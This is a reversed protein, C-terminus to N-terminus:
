IGGAAAEIPIFLMTELCIHEGREETMGSPVFTSMIFTIIMVAAAMYESGLLNQPWSSLAHTGM